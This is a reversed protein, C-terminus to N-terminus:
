RTDNKKNLNKIVNNGINILHNLPQILVFIFFLILLFSILIFIWFIYFLLELNENYYETLKQKLESINSLYDSLISEVRNNYLKVKNINLQFFINDNLLKYVKQSQNIILNGLSDIIIIKANLEKLKSENILILNFNDTPLENKLNQYNNIEDFIKDLKDSIYSYDDSHEIEYRYRIINNIILSQSDLSYIKNSKEQIKTFIYFLLLSASLLFFMILLIITLSYRKTKTINKNFYNKLM